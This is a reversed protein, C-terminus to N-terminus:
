THTYFERISRLDGFLYVMFLFRKITTLNVCCKFSDLNLNVFSHFLKDRGEEKERETERERERLNIIDGGIEIDRVHM